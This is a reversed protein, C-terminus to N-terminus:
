ENSQNNDDILCNDDKESLYIAELKQIEEIEKDIRKNVFIKTERNM